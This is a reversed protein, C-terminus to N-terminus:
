REGAAIGAAYAVASVYRGNVFTVMGAFDGATLGFMDMQQAIEGAPEADRAFCEICYRTAWAGFSSNGVYDGPAGCVDCRLTRM